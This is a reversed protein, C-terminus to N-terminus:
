RSPAEPAPRLKGLPSPKSLWGQIADLEPCRRPDKCFRRRAEKIEAEIKRRDGGLALAARITNVGPWFAAGDIAGPASGEFLAFAPDYTFTKRAHSVAVEDASSFSGDKQSRYLFGMPRPVPPEVCEKRTCDGWYSLDYPSMSLLDPRGDQDADDIDDIVLGAPLKGYDAVKGDKAAAVTCRAVTAFDTSGSGLTSGGYCFGLEKVGDGDFDFSLARDVHFFVLGLPEPSPAYPLEKGQPDVHVLDFHATAGTKTLLEGTVGDSLPIPVTQLFDLRVVWAGQGAPICAGLKGLADAVDAHLPSEGQAADALLKDHAQKIKACANRVSTPTASADAADTATTPAPASPPVAVTPATAAPAAPHGAAPSPPAGGCAPALLACLAGPLLTATSPRTM